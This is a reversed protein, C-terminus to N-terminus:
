FYIKSLNVFTMKLSIVNLCFIEALHEFICEIEYQIM